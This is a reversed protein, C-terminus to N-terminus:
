PSQQRLIPTLGGPQSIAGSLRDRPVLLPHTAVPKGALLDGPGAPEHRSTESFTESAPFQGPPSQRAFHHFLGNDEVASEDIASVGDRLWLWCAPILCIAVLCAVLLPLSLWGGRQSGNECAVNECAADARGRESGADPEAPSQPITTSPGTAEDSAAEAERDTEALSEAAIPSGKANLLEDLGEPRFSDHNLCLDLMIAFERDTLKSAM